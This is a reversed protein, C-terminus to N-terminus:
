KNNESSLSNNPCDSESSYPKIDLVPTNDMPDLGRVTLTTGDISVINVLTLSIPNPRVPSRTAFVGLINEERNGRPHVQLITRDSHNFWCLVFVSLGVELGYTAPFYEPYLEITSLKDSLTGMNPIEELTNYSSHVVGIPACKIEQIKESSESKEATDLCQNCMWDCSSIYPNERPVHIISKKSFENSLGIVERYLPLINPSKVSYEGNIQKVMLESDSFIEINTDVPNCYRSVHKLATILATYEAFNNSETGIPQSDAELVDVGEMILWSSAALGPNGRSAGDTYVTITKM